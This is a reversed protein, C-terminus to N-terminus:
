SIELIGKLTETYFKAKKDLFLPFDKALETGKREVDSLDKRKQVKELRSEFEAFVKEKFTKTDSLKEAMKQKIEEEGTLGPNEAKVEALTDNNVKSICEQLMTSVQYAKSSPDIEKKDPFDLLNERANAIVSGMIKGIFDHTIQKALEKSEESNYRTSTDISYEKIIEEILESRYKSNDLEPKKWSGFRGGSNFIAKTFNEGEKRVQRHVSGEKSPSPFISQMVGGSTRERQHTKLETGQVDVTEKFERKPEAQVKEKPPSLIDWIEFENVKFTNSGRESSLYGDLSNLDNAGLQDFRELVGSMAPHMLIDNLTDESILTESGEQLLDLKDIEKNLESQAEKLENKLQELKEKKDKLLAPDSGNEKLDKIERELGKIEKKMSDVVPKIKAEIEYIREEVVKKEFVPILGKLVGLKLSAIDKREESQLEQRLGKLVETRGKIFDEVIEPHEHTEMLDLLSDVEKNIEEMEKKLSEIKQPDGKEESFTILKKLAAELKNDGAKQDMRKKRDEIHEQINANIKNFIRSDFLRTFIGFLGTNKEYSAKMVSRLNKLQKTNMSFKLDAAFKNIEKISSALKPDTTLGIMGTKLDVVAYKRGNSAIQKAVSDFQELRAEPSARNVNSSPTSSNSGSAGTTTM